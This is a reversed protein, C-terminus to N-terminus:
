EDGHGFVAVCGTLCNKTADPSLVANNAPLPVFVHNNAANAAISHSTGAPHQASVPGTTVAPVNYTPFLQVLTEDKSDVVGAPTSGKATAAPLPRQPSGSGTAYYNGDGPNFWVEDGAGVGFITADINGNSANVIVDRPDAAVTGNPDWLNGNTDAVENCGVFLDQKGQSGQGNGKGQNGQNNGNSGPSPGLTLGAPGCLPVPYQAEVTATFPNIRIVAGDPVPQGASPGGPPGGIQPISLYFRNSGPDWVPQEAGNQANVGTHGPLPATDFTLRQGVTLHGNSQNVSILTGFPPTDANNIVLLIGHQPDYALEDARLGPAGGTTANSVTANNRLDITVVRSKADTVFLWPFAAVVGNPGSTANSGTFGAFPPTATIRGVFQGNIANVVEVGKNSRDALYYTQTTQDVFSIDFSYMAGATNNDSGASPIPALTLLRLSRDAGAEQGSNNNSQGNNGANSSQGNNGANNSQGNNGANNSQGNNGSPMAKQAHGTSLVLLSAVLGMGLFKGYRAIPVCLSTGPSRSMEEEM